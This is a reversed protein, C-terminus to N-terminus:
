HTPGAVAPRAYAGGLLDDRLSPTAAIVDQFHQRDLVLCICDTLTTVTANRPAHHLLGAEGFYDGDELVVVLTRTGAGSDRTVEVRGRAIVYFKDAVDGEHVLTTGARAHEVSFSEALTVLQDEGLRALLPVRRLAAPTIEIEATGSAAIFGHQKEWLSAYVGARALLEDHTGEEVLRGDAMVFVRDAHVVSSLRHTVSVVTRGVSMRRLTANVAAETTADLASTAEDLLLIEPDRVLARALAIRQRQGGSLRMGREGVMTAYGNPLSAIFDHIEASRAAAEVEADSAHRRGVRINEAISASFLFSDQSVVATQERLSEVTGARLDRGDLQVSGSTPDQLRLLLSLLTSKGSGSPGVVAVSSGRPIIATVGDLARRTGYDVTVDRLEIARRLRGHPPLTAAAAGEDDSALLEDVRRLSGAAQIVTPAYQSIWSLASSLVLFMAQFGALAGLSMSGRLAMVAGVALVVVRLLNIGIGASREVMASLFTLQRSANALQEVLGGFRRVSEGGLLFVRVTPQAAVNEHVAALTQGEHQKREYSVRTARHAFVRPFLFCAPWVLMAVLALRWDFWFLVVTAILADCAPLLLWPPAGSLAGEVTALDGSFRALIDGTHTRGFYDLSLQQLREFMAIRLERLVGSQVRAYLYDRAVGVFSVLVAGVGLVVLLAILEGLRRQPITRDIMRALVVPVLAGFGSEILLAAAITATARANGKARGHRALTRAMSALTGRSGDDTTSSTM